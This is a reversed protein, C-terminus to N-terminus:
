RKEVTGVRILGCEAKRGRGKKKASLQFPKMRKSVAEEKSNNGNASLEKRRPRWICQWPKRLRVKVHPDLSSERHKDWGNDEFAAVLDQLDKTQNKKTALNSQSAQCMRDAILKTDEELTGDKELM